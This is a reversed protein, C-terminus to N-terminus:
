QSVGCAKWWPCVSASSSTTSRARAEAVAEDLDGAALGQELGLDERQHGPQGVGAPGDQELRAAGEVDRRRGRTRMM